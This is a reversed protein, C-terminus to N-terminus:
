SSMRHEGEVDYAYTDEYGYPVGRPDLFNMILGLSPPNHPRADRGGHACSEPQLTLLSAVARRARDCPTAGARLALLIADVWPSLMMADSVALIPPTDIIVIDYQERACALYRQM